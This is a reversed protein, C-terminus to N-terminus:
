IIEKKFICKWVSCMDDKIFYAKTFGEKNCKRMTLNYISYKNEEIAHYTVYEIDVIKNM